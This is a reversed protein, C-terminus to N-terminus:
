TALRWLLMWGLAFVPAAATLSDIRDLVGGHGPLLVGSDKAGHVRKIVSELLDGLVSFLLTVACLLGFWFWQQSELRLWWTGLVAILITAVGAGLLGEVTKGPSVRSALRHKGWRKGAFFAASDAVWVLVLLFLTYRPGNDVIESLQGGHLVVISVWAPLLVLLGMLAQMWRMRWWSPLVPYRWVILLIGGWMVVSLVILTILISSNQILKWLVFLAIGTLIIYNYCPLGILIAWEWAGLIIIIGLLVSLIETPLM